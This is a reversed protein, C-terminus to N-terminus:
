LPLVRLLFVPRFLLLPFLALQGTHLKYSISVRHETSVTARARPIPSSYTRIIHLYQKYSPSDPLSRHASSESPARVIIFSSAQPRSSRNSLTPDSFSPGSGARHTQPSAPVPGPGGTQRAVKARECSPTLAAETEWSSLLRTGCAAQRVM